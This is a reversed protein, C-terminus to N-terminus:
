KSGETAPQTAPTAATGPAAGSVPPLHPITPDAALVEPTYRDSLTKIFEIIARRKLVNQSDPAGDLQSTFGPMINQYTKVIDAAPNAISRNLYTDWDRFEDATPVRAEVGAVKGGSQIAGPELEQTYLYLNKWTPGQLRTGDLSHCTACGLQTYLKKGVDVFPVIEVSGGTKKHFLDGMEALKADFEKQSRVHVMTTMNSHGNGCYQTCFVNFDGLQTAQFWMENIRGPVINRHARFAPIYLGHIVDESTMVLRVPQDKVVWIEPDSGGNPYTFSFTWKKADVQIVYANSPAVNTDNFGKAGLVFIVMVVILPIISWALELTTHHTPAKEQVHGARRRYKIMFLILTGVIIAFFFISTWLVLDWIPDVTEGFKSAAEPLGLSSLLTLNMM